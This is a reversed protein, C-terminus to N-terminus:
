QTVLIDIQRAIGGTGRVPATLTAILHGRYTGPPVDPAATFTVKFLHQGGAALAVNECPTSFSVGIGAPFGAEYDMSMTVEVPDNPAAVTVPVVAQGGPALALQASSRDEADPLPIDWTLVPPPAEGPNGNCGALLLAACPVLLYALPLSPIKMRIM